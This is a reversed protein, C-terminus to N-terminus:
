YQVFGAGSAIVLDFFDAEPLGGPRDVVSVSHTISRISGIISDISDFKVLVGFKKRKNKQRNKPRWTDYLASVKVVRLDRAGRRKAERWSLGFVPFNDFRDDRDFPRAISRISRQGGHKYQHVLREM